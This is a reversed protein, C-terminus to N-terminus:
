VSQSKVRTPVRTSTSGQGERAPDDRAPDAGDPDDAAPPTCVAAAAAGCALLRSMPVPAEASRGPKEAPSSTM